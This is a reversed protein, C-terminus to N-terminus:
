QATCFYSIRYGHWKDPMAIWWCPLRCHCRHLSCAVVGLLCLVHVFDDLPLVACVVIPPQRHNNQHPDNWFCFYLDVGGCSSSSFYAYFSVSYYFSYDFDFYFNHHFHHSWSCRCYHRWDYGCCYSYIMVVDCYRFFSDFFSSCSCADYLDDDCCVDFSVADYPYDFLDCSPYVFFSSYFCSYFYLYSVNRVHDLDAYQCVDDDDHHHSPLM